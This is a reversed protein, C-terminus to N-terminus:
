LCTKSEGRGRRELGRGTLRVLGVQLLVELVFQLGHSLGELYSQPLQFLPVPSLEDELLLSALALGLCGSM